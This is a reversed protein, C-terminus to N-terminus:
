EVAHVHLMHLGSAMVITSYLEHRETTTYILKQAKGRAQRAQRVCGHVVRTLVTGHVHLYLCDREWAVSKYDFFVILVAPTAMRVLLHTLTHFTNTKYICLLSLLDRAKPPPLPSHM